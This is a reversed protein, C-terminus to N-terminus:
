LEDDDEQKFEEEVYCLDKPMFFLFENNVCVIYVKSEFTNSYMQDIIEGEQNYLPHTKKSIKIRDGVYFKKLQNM